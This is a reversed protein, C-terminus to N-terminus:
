KKAFNRAQNRLAEAVATGNQKILQKVSKADVANITLHMSGGGKNGSDTMSRVREALHAPLVMENQHLQTMPNVGSPIDYGGSASAINKAFGMVAAVAGIAVAPALFPGVIPIAAIASFAKAASVWAYMIIEKLAVGANIAISMLGGAQETAVGEATAAKKVTLKAMETTIFAVLARAQQAIFEDLIAMGINASMQRFTMQGRIMQQLGRTFEGTIGAVMNEYRKQTDIITRRTIQAIEADTERHIKAKEAEIEKLKDKDHKYLRARAELAREQIKLKDQEIEKLAQMQDIADAQDLAREMALARRKEELVALNKDREMDIAIEKERTSTVATAKDTGGTPIANPNKKAASSTSAGGEVTPLGTIGAADNYVDKLLAQNREAIKLIDEGADKVVDKLTDLGNAWATKAGAWDRNLLKGMVDSLVGAYTGILSFGTKVVTVLIEVVTKVGILGAAIIDIAIKFGNLVVKGEGKLFNFFDTLAPMIAMGVAMALSQATDGADNMAARYQEITAVKDPGMELGLDRAKDRAEAMKDATLKLVDQVEVFGRGMLRQSMINRDTGEQYQLLVRNVDMLIDLQSRYNGNTDRTAIGVDNFTSENTRLQRDVMQTAAILQGSSSQIDGLALNLHSAEATTIGLTRSLKVAEKELEVTEDIAKKFAAVSVVAAALRVFEAKMDSVAGRVNNSAQDMVDKVDKPAGKLGDTDAGFKIRVDEGNNEAM